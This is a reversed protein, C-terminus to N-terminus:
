VDLLDHSGCHPCFNNGIKDEVIEDIDFTKECSYCYIYYVVFENKSKEEM